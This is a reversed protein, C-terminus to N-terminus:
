NDLFIRVGINRLTRHLDIWCNGKLLSERISCSQRGNDMRNKLLQALDFSSFDSNLERPVSQVMRRDGITVIEFGSGLPGLNKISRVVDDESIAQANKGRMREVNQKVHLPDVGINQCMKQFHNRFAPDQKIDKKYKRAFEELNEKFTEMQMKMQELQQAQLESGVKEFQARASAHHQLGQIGRRRSM